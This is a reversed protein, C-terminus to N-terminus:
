VRCRFDLRQPVLDMAPVKLIQQHGEQSTRESVGLEVTVDHYVVIYWM